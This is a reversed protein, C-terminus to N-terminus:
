HAHMGDHAHGHDLEDATATRVNIVKGTFFLDKGALPHNFDMKVFDTEIAVVKGIVQEGNQDSLTIQNGIHLLKFDIVGDVKFTDMPLDLIAEADIDGYADTAKIQFTFDEGISKGHLNAEFDPIMNGTGFLFVLPNNSDATEIHMREEAASAAHLQYTVTVVTDKAIKM